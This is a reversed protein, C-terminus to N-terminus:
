AVAGAQKISFILVRHRPPATAQLIRSAAPGTPGYGLGMLLAAVPLLWVAGTAILALAAAGALTGAQLLRAPGVAAVLPAGFMLFLISGLITISSFNGVAEPPLGLEATMRPAVVPVIQSLFTGTTQILLTAALAPLWPARTV